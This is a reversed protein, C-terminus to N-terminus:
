GRSFPSAKNTELFFIGSTGANGPDGGMRASGNNTCKKNKIENYSACKIATFDSKLSEAFYEYSRSHACSGTLDAGCGPQGTGYNPYFDAQGIPEGFGLTGGNTHIVEVYAADTPAVRTDPANLSFLPDAPDLAFISQIRGRTVIKGIIGAVHAGLSHGIVNLRDFSIFGNLNLFDIFNAVVPAVENVRNRASIYNITQAGAGWDVVIINFNGRRLYAEISLVNVAATQNNLWGHILFRTPHAANFTSGRIENANMGIRVGNPSSQTYLLYFVDSQANFMPEITQIELPNLDVLHMNGDAAPVLSWRHEVHESADSSVRSTLPSALLGDAFFLVTLIVFCKM